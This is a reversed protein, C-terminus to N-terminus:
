QQPVPRVNIKTKNLKGRVIDGIAPNVTPPRPPPPPPLTPGPPIMDKPRAVPNDNIIKVADMDKKDIMPPGTPGPGSGNAQGESAAPGAAGAGSGPKSGSTDSKKDPAQGSSEKDMRKLEEQPVKKPPEPPAGPAVSSAEGRQVVITNKTGSGGGPVVPTLTVAGRLTVVETLQTSKNYSTLFETGRVGAVATPTKMLFKNKDEDYKQEVNNRVKGDILNLEVNRTGAKEDSEYKDIKLETSPSVNIVNRDSMVIKARSDAATIVTEGPFIKSGVKTPAIQNQLNKVKVDGKVVMFLGQMTDAAKLHSIPLAVSVIVATLFILKHNM